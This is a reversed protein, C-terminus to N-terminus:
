AKMIDAPKVYRLGKGRIEEECMHVENNTYPIRNKICMQAYKYYQTNMDRMVKLAEDRDRTRYIEVGKSVLVYEIIYDTASNEM